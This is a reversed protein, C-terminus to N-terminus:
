PKNGTAEPASSPSRRAISAAAYVLHGSRLAEEFKFEHMLQRGIYGEDLISELCTRTNESLLHYHRRWWSTGEYVNQFCSPSLYTDISTQIRIMFGHIDYANSNMLYESALDEQRLVDADAIYYCMPKHEYEFPMFMQCATPKYTNIICRDMIMFPCYGTAAHLRTYEDLMDIIDRNLLFIMLSEVATLDLVVGLRCCAHCGAPCQVPENESGPDYFREPSVEKKVILAQCLADTLEQERLNEQRKKENTGITAMGGGEAHNLKELGVESDVHRVGKWRLVGTM